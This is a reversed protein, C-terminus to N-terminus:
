CFPATPVTPQYTSPDRHIKLCEDLRCGINLLFICEVDNTFVSMYEYLLKEFIFIQM